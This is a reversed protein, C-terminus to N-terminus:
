SHTLTRFFIVVTFFHSQFHFCFPTMKCHIDLCISTLNTRIIQTSLMPRFIVIQCSSGWLLFTKWGHRNGSLQIISLMSPQLLCEYSGIQQDQLDQSPIDSPVIHPCQADLVYRCTHRCSSVCHNYQEDLTGLNSFCKLFSERLILFFDGLCM